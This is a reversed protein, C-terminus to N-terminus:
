FIGHISSGPLGYDMPDCLTLCSQAVESIGKVSSFVSMWLLLMRLCLMCVYCLICVYLDVWRIFSPVLILSLQDSKLTGRLWQWRSLRRFEESKECIRSFIPFHQNITQKTPHFEQFQIEIIEPVCKKKKKPMVYNEIIKGTYVFM